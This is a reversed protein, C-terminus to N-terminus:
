RTEDCAATTVRDKLIFDRRRRDDRRGRARVAVVGRRSGALGM